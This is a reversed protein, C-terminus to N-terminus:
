LGVYAQRTTHLEVLAGLLEVRRQWLEALEAPAAGSRAGQALQADIIALRDEMEVVQRASRGRLVTGSSRARLEAELQASRAVLARTARAATAERVAEVGGRVAAALTVAVAFGAALWGVRRWRRRFREGELRAAVAPWLDRPPTAGPLQALAHRLTDLRAVEAACAPCTAVHEQAEASALGDRAALLDDLSLHM